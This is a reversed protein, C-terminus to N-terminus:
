GPVGAGTRLSEVLRPHVELLPHLVDDLRELDDADDQEGGSRDDCKDM